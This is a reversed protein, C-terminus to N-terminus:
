AIALFIYNVGNTNAAIVATENVIFGTGDIDIWDYASIEIDANNMYLARDNGTNIGNTDVFVWNGTTNTAKVMVFRAGAVFGCNITQTTGNGTYSGVKSVGPCTAFLHTIYTGGSANVDTNTGISFVTSTPTTSNWYTAGNTGFSNTADLFLVQTIDNPYVCWNSTSNRRKRIMLEPVVGLNHNITRGVGTGTDCVVDMVSPARKFSYNAYNNDFNWAQVSSDAGFTVATNSAFSTLGDTQTVEASTSNSRLYPSPGTLRNVWYAGLNSASSFNNRMRSINLDTVFGTTTVRTTSTGTWATPFFVSTGTTPVKMPGRRIAVYVYTANAIRNATFGTANTRVVGQDTTEESDTLNPFLGRSGQVSMGRMNDAIYWNNTSDSRKQMVWQPEYGLTVSADGSGDTTFSGCTIVNDSGSLGFGGADHAFLYAIYTGGSANVSNDNGLYFVTSTPDADNWLTNATAAAATTDLSMFKTGGLSRHYTRWNDVGDTRKVIMFGPASGLNHSVSRGQTGNGTYTVIDFFKTQERFTWSAYTGASNNNSAGSGSWSAGNSNFAFSSISWSAATQAANTYETSLVSNTGRVTDLLNSADAANRRKIWFLGGKGALDIGNTIIQTAGTGTYLWTSFVDEIYNVDGSVASANSNFM